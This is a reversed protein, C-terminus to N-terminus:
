VKWSESFVKPFRVCATGEDLVWYNRSTGWSSHSLSKPCFGFARLDDHFEGREIREGTREVLWQRVTGAHICLKGAYVCPDSNAVCEHWNEGRHVTARELYLDLQGHVRSLRKGDPNAVLTEVLLLADLVVRWKKPTVTAALQVGVQYLRDAFRKMSRVTAADGIKVETEPDALVLTYLPNEGELKMWCAVKRGFISGLFTLVEARRSEIEHEEGCVEEDGMAQEIHAFLDGGTLHILTGLGAPNPHGGFTAWKAACAGENYKASRRSWANWAALMTPGPDVAHLIMGVKLWEAYDDALTPDLMELCQLARVIDDPRRARPSTGNSRPSGEDAVLVPELDDPNCRASDDLLELVVPLGATTNVTGPVRLVRALDGVSDLVWGHRRAHAQATAVFRRALSAAKEREAEGDLIWLEKLLLYVHLGRGSGVVITPRIGIEEVLRLADARTPPYVKGNGHDGVDLDLWVGPIACVDAATGRGELPPTQFAGVSAYVDRGEAALQEIYAVAEDIVFFFRTSKKQKEWVSFCLGADVSLGHLAELYQRAEVLDVLPAPPTTAM